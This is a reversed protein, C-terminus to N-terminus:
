NQREKRKSRIEGELCHLAESLLFQITANKFCTLLSLGPLNKKNSRNANKLGGLGYQAQLRVRSFINKDM